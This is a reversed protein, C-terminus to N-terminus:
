ILDMIGFFGIVCIILTFVTILAIMVNRKLGAAHEGLM